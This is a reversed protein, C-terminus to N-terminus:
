GGGLPSLLCAAIGVDITSHMERALGDLWRSLCLRVQLDEKIEASTHVEPSFVVRRQHKAFIRLFDEALPLLHGLPGGAVVRSHSVLLKGSPRTDLLLAGFLVWETFLSKKFIANEEGIYVIALGITVIEFGSCGIACLVILLDIWCSSGYPFRCLINGRQVCNVLIIRQLQRRAPSHVVEM